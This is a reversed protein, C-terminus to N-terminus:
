LTDGSSDISLLLLRSRIAYIGTHQLYGVLHDGFEFISATHELVLRGFVGTHFLSDVTEIHFMSSGGCACRGCGCCRRRIQVSKFEPFTNLMSQDISQLLNTVNDSSPLDFLSREYGVIILMHSIPAAILPPMAAVIIPVNVTPHMVLMTLHYEFM